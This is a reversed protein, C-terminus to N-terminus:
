QSLDFSSMKLPPLSCIIFHLIFLCRLQKKLLKKSSKKEKNSFCFARRNRLRM